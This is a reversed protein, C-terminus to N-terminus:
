SVYPLVDKGIIRVNKYFQIQESEVRYDSITEGQKMKSIAMNYLEYNDPDKDTHLVCIVKSNYDDVVIHLFM